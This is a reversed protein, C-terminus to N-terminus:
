ARTSKSLEMRKLQKTPNLACTIQTNERESVGQIVWLQAFVRPDVSIRVAVGSTEAVQSVIAAHVNLGMHALGILGSMLLSRLCAIQCGLVISCWTWSPFWPSWSSRSKCCTNILYTSYTSKYERVLRAPTWGPMTQTAVIHFTPAAQPSSIKRSSPRLPEARPRSPKPADHAMIAMILFDVLLWGSIGYNWLEGRCSHAEPRRSLM